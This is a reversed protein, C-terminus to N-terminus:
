ATCATLSSDRPLSRPIFGDQNLFHGPIACSTRFSGPSIQTPVVPGSYPFPLYHKIAQGKYGLALIFGRFGYAAYINMIHWLIPHGGVEVMLKPKVETEEALRTGLGGALMVVKVM